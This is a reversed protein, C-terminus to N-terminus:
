SAARVLRFGLNDYRLAPVDRLRYAGRLLAANGYGWSGGRYVRNSGREPGRPNERPSTTYYNGDYWDVCWEWVNGAQNYTGYGSVGGAYDYVRCTTENGRTGLHRCKTNDWANGWPYLYGKPGRAAKEWEAETPLRLGVRKGYAVADEWSVDTVPHDALASEKWRTNNPERGKGERVFRAYQANTVCYLGIYYADLYVQHQPCNSDQGDGMEFAGAPVYVLVSGDAENVV